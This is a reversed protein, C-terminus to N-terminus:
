FLVKLYMRRAAMGKTPKEHRAIPMQIPVAKTAFALLIQGSCMWFYEGM